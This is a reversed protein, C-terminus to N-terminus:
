FFNYYNKNLENIILLMNSLLFKSLLLLFIIKHQNIELSLLM